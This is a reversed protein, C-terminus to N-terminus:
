TMNERWWQELKTRSFRLRRGMGSHPLPPRGSKEDGKLYRKITRESVKFTAAVDKLTMVDEELSRQPSGMRM